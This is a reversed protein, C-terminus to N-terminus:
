KGGTSRDNNIQINGKVNSIAPSVAGGTIQTTSGTDALVPTQVYAWTGIGLVGISWAAGIILWLTRLADARALQPFMNKRIVERFVLIVAGIAVGGIGAVEGADKLIM